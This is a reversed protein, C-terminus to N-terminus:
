DLLVHVRQGVEADQDIAVVFPVHELDEGLRHGVPRRQKELHDLATPRLAETLAVELRQEFRDLAFLRDAPRQSPSQVILASAGARVIVLSSSKAIRGLLLTSRQNNRPSNRSDLTVRRFGLWLPATAAIANKSNAQFM